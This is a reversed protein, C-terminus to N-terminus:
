EEPMVFSLILYVLIGPFAASVISVVVFLVRFLTPDMNIYEALGGCVGSFMRNTSSKKLRRDM